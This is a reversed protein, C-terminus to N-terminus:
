SVDEWATATVTKTVSRKVVRMPEPYDEPNWDGNAVAIRIFDIQKEAAEASEWQEDDIDGDGYAIAYEVHTNTSTNSM